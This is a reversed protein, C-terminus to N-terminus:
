FVPLRTDRVIRHMRHRYGPCLPMFAPWSDDQWLTSSSSTQCCHWPMKSENGVTKPSRLDIGNYIDSTKSRLTLYVQATVLISVVAALDSGPLDPALAFWKLSQAEREKALAETLENREQLEWRLMEKTIPRRRLARGFGLIM